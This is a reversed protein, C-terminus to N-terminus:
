AVHIRVGSQRLGVAAPARTNRGGRCPAHAHTCASAPYGDYHLTNVPVDNERVDVVREDETWNALPAIKVVQTSKTGRACPIEIRTGSQDRRLATM